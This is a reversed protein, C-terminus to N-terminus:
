TRDADVMGGNTRIMGRYPKKKYEVIPTGKGFVSNNHIVRHRRFLEARIKSLCEDCIMCEVHDISWLHKGQKHCNKMGCTTGHVDSM